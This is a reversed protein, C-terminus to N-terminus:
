KICIIKINLNSKYKYRRITITITITIKNTMIKILVVSLLAFRNSYLQTDLYVM